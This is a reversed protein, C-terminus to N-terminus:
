VVGVAVPEVTPSLEDSRIFVLTAVLGAIALGFMVWFAWVAGSTFAEPFPVPPTSGRLNNFHSISVSSAV